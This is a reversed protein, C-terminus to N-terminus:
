YKFGLNVHTSEFQKKNKKKGKGKVEKFEMDNQGKEKEKEEIKVIEKEKKKPRLSEVLEEGSFINNKKSNKIEKKPEENKIKIEEKEKNKPAEVEAEENVPKRIKRKKKVHVEWEGESKETKPPLIQEKEVNKPNEEKKQSIEVKKPNEEKENEINKNEQYKVIEKKLQQIEETLNEITKNKEDNENKLQVIEENLENIEVKRKKSADLLQKIKKFMETYELLPSDIIEDSLNQENIGKISYFKFPDDQDISLIDILRFDYNSDLKGSNYKSKLEDLNFPGSIENNLNKIYVIKIEKPISLKDYIKQFNDMNLEITPEKPTPPAYNGSRAFDVNNTNNNINNFQRNLKQVIKWPLIFSQALSAENKQETSLPPKSKDYLILDKSKLTSEDFITKPFKKKSFSKLIEERSFM